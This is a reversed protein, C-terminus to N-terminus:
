KKTKKDKKTDKKSKKKFRQFIGKKKDKDTLTKNLILSAKEIGISGWEETDVPHRTKQLEVSEKIDDKRRTVLGRNQPSSKGVKLDPMSDLEFQLDAAAAELSKQTAEEIDKLIEEDTYLHGSKVEGTVPIPIRDIILLIVNAFVNGILLLSGTIYFIFIYSILPYYWNNRFNLLFLIIAIASLVLSVAIIIYGKIKHKAMLNIGFLTVTLGIGFFAITHFIIERESGYHIRFFIVLASAIVLLSVGIIFFMSGAYYIRRRRHSVDPSGDRKEINLAETHM